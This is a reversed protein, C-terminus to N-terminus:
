PIVGPVPPSERSPTAQRAQWTSNRAARESQQAAAIGPIQAQQAPTLIAYVQTWLESRLQVRAAAHSQATAVLGAYGPDNPPTTSLLERTSRSGARLSELQPKAQAYISKIQAKQDATLDLKGLLHRFGGRRQGHWRQPGTAATAPASGAPATAAYAAVSVITGLLVAPLLNRLTSM